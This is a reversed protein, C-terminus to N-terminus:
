YLNIGLFSYGRRCVCKILRACTCLKFVFKWVFRDTTSKKKGVTVDCIVIAVFLAPFRIVYKNLKLPYLLATIKVNVLYNSWPEFSACSLIKMLMFICNLHRIRMPTITHSTAHVHTYTHTNSLYKRKFCDNGYVQFSFFIIRVISKM